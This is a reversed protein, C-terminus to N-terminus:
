KKEEKWFERNCLALHLMLAICGCTIFCDAVNFIPFDMFDTQIMDVVYGLRVRDILNGLGGGYVAALCLREFPRFPMPRRFYEYVLAVTLVAFIAVFLWGMGRLASFAAGDNRVHTLSLIGPLITQQQHLAFNQVILFKSIQDVGAIALAVLVYRVFAM